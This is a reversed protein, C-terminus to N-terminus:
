PGRGAGDHGLRDLPDAPTRPGRDVQGADVMSLNVAALLQGRRTVQLSARTRETSSTPAVRGGPREAVPSPILTWRPVASTEAVRARSSPLSSRGTRRLESLEEQGLRHDGNVSLRKTEALLARGGREAAAADQLGQRASKAAPILSAIQEGQGAASPRGARVATRTRANRPSRGQVSRPSHASVPSEISRM